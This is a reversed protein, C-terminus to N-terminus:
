SISLFFFQNRMFIHNEFSELQRVETKDSKDYIGVLQTYVKLPENHQVAREFVAKLTDATGYLNELNLFAVWVNM